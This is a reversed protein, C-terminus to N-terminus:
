GRARAPSEADGDRCPEPEDRAAQTQLPSERARDATGRVIPGPLFRVLIEGAVFTRPVSTSLQGRPEVPRLCQEPAPHWPAWHGADDAM